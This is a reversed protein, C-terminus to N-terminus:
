SFALRSEGFTDAFTDLDDAPMPRAFLFGQVYQCSLEALVAAQGPTEVGEAIPEMYLSRALELVARLLARDQPGKEAREVFVRDIKLIDVPLNRLYALSSYGTGFDDIAVRIGHARLRGLRRSVAENEDGTATVLVTETIELVLAKGPLGTRRLTAIVEDAFGPDRLQRGSVNVTVSMGHAEHWRKADRCAQDLVWSGIPGILGTEEAVPIFDVPSIRRGDPTTFRLLAEVAKIRHNVLDVVPQYFLTFGGSDVAARLEGALRSHALHAERMSPDYFVSRNRGAEKAAYLALDANQLSESPPMPGVGVFGGASATLNVERDAVHYPQALAAVCREALDVVTDVDPTVIAFEDGGLRALLDRPGAAGRLREAAILLLADGAPHGLTDNVDKFGDLDLILAAATGGERELVDQLRQRFLERNALDTLIDHGARFTLERQLDASARLAGALRLVVLVMFVGTIAAPTVAKQWTNYDHHVVVDGVFVVPGLLAALVLLPARSQWLRAPPREANEVISPHMTASAFCVTSMLWCPSAVATGGHAYSWLEQLNGAGLWGLSACLLLYGRVPRGDQIALRAALGIMMLVIVLAALLGVTRDNIPIELDVIPDLVFTWVLQTAAIAILAADLAHGAGRRLHHRLMAALAVLTIPYQAGYGMQLSDALHPAFPSVVTHVADTTVSVATATLLLRWAFRPAPRERRIAVAAVGVAVIEIAPWVADRVGSPCVAGIACAVASGMLFWLWVRSSGRQM